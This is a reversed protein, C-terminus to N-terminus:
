TLLVQQALERVVTQSSLASELPTAIVQTRGYGGSSSHAQEPRGCLLLSAGLRM